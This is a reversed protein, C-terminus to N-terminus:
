VLFWMSDNIEELDFLDDINFFEPVNTFSQSDHGILMNKEHSKQVIIAVIIAVYAIIINFSYTIQGKCTRYESM